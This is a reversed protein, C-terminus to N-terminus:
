RLGDGALLRVPPRPRVMRVMLTIGAAYCVGVVGLVLQGVTSGFPALYAHALVFLLGAFAVSFVVVTRVSSRSSARSAEVRLRMAVEERCGEALASLLDGLRQARATAAVLLACVVLDASPDALDAAFARLAEDMPIGSALREALVLVPQRIARPSLEATAMIAQGLGTAAALTDRLLETWAAVAEVRETTRQPRVSSLLKPLGAGACGAIITAVPWRTLVATICAPVLAAAVAKPRRGARRVSTEHEPSAAAPPRRAGAPLTPEPGTGAARARWASLLIGAAGLVMGTAALEASSSTM